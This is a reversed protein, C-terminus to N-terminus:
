GFNVFIIIFMYFSGDVDKLLVMEVRERVVLLIRFKKLFFIEIYLRM